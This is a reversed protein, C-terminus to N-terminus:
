AVVKSGLTHEQVLTVIAILDGEAIFVIQVGPHVNLPTIVLVVRTAIFDAVVGGRGNQLDAAIEHALREITLRDASRPINKDTILSGGLKLYTPM